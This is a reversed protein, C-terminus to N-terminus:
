ADLTALMERTLAFGRPKGDAFAALDDALYRLIRVVSPAIGGARHPSLLVNPLARFPSDRPLPEQDFVDLAAFLDGRCLRALLAASDVLSARAVNILVADRPMAELHARGLLHASGENAAACLVLVDSERVLEELGVLRAGLQAARAPPLFPDYACLRTHFPALLEALRGGVGGLGVIGVRLGTLEREYLPIDGPFDAVWAEAANWMAAHYNSTRRLSALILALAMEAVAPSFGRRGVSVAIDRDLLTRAFPQTIDIHGCFRLRPAADLMAPSFMPWSWMLLADKDRLLPAIEEPTDCSAREIHAFTGLECWFDALPAWSFFTPPLNVLLNM